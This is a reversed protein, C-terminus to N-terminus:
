QGSLASGVRGRTEAVAQTNEDLAGRIQGLIGKLNQAASSWKGHVGQYSEQESGEWQGALKRMDSDMESLTSEIANMVSNLEESTSEADSRKFAYVGM